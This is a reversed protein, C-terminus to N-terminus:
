KGQPDLLWCGCKICPRENEDLMLSLFIQLKGSHGKQAKKTHHNTTPDIKKKIIM